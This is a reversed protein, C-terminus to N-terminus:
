ASPMDTPQVNDLDSTQVKDGLKLSSSQVLEVVRVDLGAQEGLRQLM